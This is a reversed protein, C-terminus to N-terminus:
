RSVWCGDATLAACLVCTVSARRCLRCRKMRLSVLLIVAKTYEKALGVRSNGIYRKMRLSVLLIVAKTYEKALGVRLNGIYRKMRLSVLLIVAKTYEKALGM